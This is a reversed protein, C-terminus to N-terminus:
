RSVRGSTDPRKKRGVQQLQTQGSRAEAGPTRFGIRGRPKQPIPAMLEKIAALLLRISEDHTDVKRELEALKLALEQHKALFDRLKIFTRVVYVSVDIARPTNLVSAAMIAGHETFAHPLNPSFKLRKLHDCNTVVELKEEASLTFLFESPFRGRNRKVAQNLAKTTTGYLKALDADLLVKQGRVLLIRPEIQEVPIVVKNASM